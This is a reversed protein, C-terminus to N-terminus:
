NRRTAYEKQYTEKTVLDLNACGIADTVQKIQAENMDSNFTCVVEGHNFVAHNNAGLVKGIAILYLTRM